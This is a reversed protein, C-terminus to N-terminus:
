EDIINAPVQFIYICKKVIFKNIRINVNSSYLNSVVVTINTTDNNNGDCTYGCNNQFDTQFDTFNLDFASKKEGSLDCLLM